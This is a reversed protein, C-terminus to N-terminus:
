SEDMSDDSEKDGNTMQSDPGIVDDDDEDASDDEQDEDIELNSLYDGMDDESGVGEDNDAEDDSENDSPEQFVLLSSIDEVENNAQGELNRKRQELIMKMKGSLRSIQLHNKHRPKMVEIMPSLIGERISHSTAIYTAHHRVVMRAWRVWGLNMGPETEIKTKLHLLLPKVYQIPLRAVAKGVIEEEEKELVSSLVSQDESRLGQILMQSLAEPQQVLKDLSSKSNILSLRDELSPDCPPAPEKKRKVGKNPTKTEM